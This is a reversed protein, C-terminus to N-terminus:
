KAFFGLAASGKVEVKNGVVQKSEEEEIWVASYEEGLEGVVVYTKGPEPKFTLEGSVEYVTNTLALIPAAYETRGVILVTCMKAPVKRDLVFPEMYMGRGYNVALTKSRSDEIRNGEIKELYFFDAKSTSHKKVSDKVIALPGTYGDPVSPAYAACGGM